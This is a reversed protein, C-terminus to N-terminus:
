DGLLILRAQGPLAAVVRNMLPLDIMSAEDVVLLDLHLPNEATYRPQARGPRVGILRHLTLAEAPIAERVAESLNLGARLKRISETLRAAAKGTPAALAIRLPRQGQAQAQEILLALIAAVTHTKGTGP